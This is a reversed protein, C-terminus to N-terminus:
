VLYGASKQRKKCCGSAAKLTRLELRIVVGMMQVLQEAFVRSYIGKNRSDYLLTPCCCWCVARLFWAWTAWTQRHTQIHQKTYGKPLHAM